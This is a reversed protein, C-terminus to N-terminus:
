AEHLEKKVYNLENTILSRIPEYGKRKIEDRTMKIQSYKEFYNQKVDDVLVKLADIGRTNQYNDFYANFAKDINPKVRKFAEFAEDRYKSLSIWYDDIPDGQEEDKYYYMDDENKILNFILGKVWLELVDDAAMKPVLSFEEREMRRKVTADFHCNANCRDYKEKYSLVPRIAYAPVVGVQRYIIIRDKMGLNAFDVNANGPLLNKVYGNKNLRSNAKDPVGIYYIDAPKEIPSHGRYDYTFLPSAKKLADTVTRKLEDEPMKNIVEDITTNEFNSASPLKMCYSMILEQVEAADKTDFEHVKEVGPIGKVFANINIEDKNLAIGCAIGQALDIQFTQSTRGVQNQLKALDSALRSNVEEFVNRIDKVKKYESMLLELLSNYFTLAADRRVIERKNVAAQNTLNILTEAYGELTSARKFFKKDCEKLDQAAIKLSSELMSEKKVCEEREETMEGMFVDVQKQIGLILNELTGVGCERNAYNVMLKKFQDAVRGRLEAIKAEVEKQNPQSVRIFENAEDLGSQNNNIVTFPYRPSKPLVFDIVNDKGNNERINVEPSDIWNNVVIDADVCSYCMQSIIYQASKIAYIRALDAGCFTIECVGMGAAWAKKVSDKVGVDMTGERINKELNDTVSAAATSLEGAATVFALSIMESIQDIHNYADNNSNKNDVFFFANFPRGNVQDITRIYDLSLEDGEKLGFHMLWDLDMIAGYANPKVKAMGTSSMAEFVDPLVGYGTLKCNPVLKKFLYAMNIFTGCGTGGCVSFVMHIEVDKSLLEYDHSMSAHIDNIQNIKDLIKREIESYNVTFAFRGNTRVQGAGLQMSTLAYLNEEPLWGFHDKNVQYIARADEVLIPLQENPSLKIQGYKTPIVKNYEGGDTDIGLFGIMPPVEGYTDVFMKKTHLLTKM